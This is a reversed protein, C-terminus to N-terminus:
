SVASRAIVWLIKVGARLSGWWNGSVKETGALRVGYRVPVEVVRLGRQAAKVQMEITWGYNRDKMGLDRLVKARIARFPGLDTARQKWILNLLSTALWNGFRQHGRLAGASLDGLVRSGIVLDAEGREIPGVLLGAEAADESGDAQLYVLIAEDPAEALVALCAAGYGKEDIKVVRAGVLKARLSTEDDSGNDAVVVQAFIGVPLQLL